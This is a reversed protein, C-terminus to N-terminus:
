RNSKFYCKTIEHFVSTQKRKDLNLEEALHWSIAEGERDEDSALLGNRAKKFCDKLKCSKKNTHFKMNQNLGNEVDLKRQLCTPLIGMVQDVQYDSGLFKSQKQRASEVIVLNKAM